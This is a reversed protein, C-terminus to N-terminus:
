MVDREITPKMQPAADPMIHGNKANGSGTRIVPKLVSTEGVQLLSPGIDIAAAHRLNTTHSVRSIDRSVGGLIERVHVLERRLKLIDHRLRAVDISRATGHIHQLALTFEDGM